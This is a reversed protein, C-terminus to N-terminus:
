EPTFDFFRRLGFIAVTNVSLPSGTLTQCRGVGAFLKRPKSEGRQYSASVGNEEVSLRGTESYLYWKGIRNGAADEEGKAKVSSNPYRYVCHHGGESRCGIWREQEDYM